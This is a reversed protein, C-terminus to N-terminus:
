LDISKAQQPSRRASRIFYYGGPLSLCINFLQMLSIGIIAAEATADGLSRFILYFAAQGFGIGGPTIPIAMAVFGFCALPFFQMYSVPNETLEKVVLYLFSVTLLQASLSLILFVSLKKFNLFQGIEELFILISDKISLIFDRQFKQTLLSFVASIKKRLILCATAMVLLFGSAKLYKLHTENLQHMEFLLFLFSFVILGYLGLVRDILILALTRRKQQHTAAALEIAKIVDGGVGGPVFTNFFQGILHLKLSLAFSIKEILATVFRFRTAFIIFQLSFILSGSIFILPNKLADKIKSLQLLDSRYLLYLTAIAIIVRLYPKLRQLM